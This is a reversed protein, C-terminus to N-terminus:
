VWWKFYPENSPVDFEYLVTVIMERDAYKTDFNLIDYTSLKKFFEDIQYNINQIEYAKFLKLLKKKM